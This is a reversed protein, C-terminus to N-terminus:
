RVPGTWRLGRYEREFGARLMLPLWPGASPSQDDFREVEVSRKPHAQCLATLTEAVRAGPEERSAAPFSWLTRGSRSLWFWPEGGVLAVSAGAERRPGRSGREEGPWRLSAGWPCAPDTAAIVAITQDEGDRCSRLRDVAGPAAFQAGTLGEVFYGRRIKGVEEMAKLVPYLASWGGRAAESALCERALIGHRELLSQARAHERETPVADDAGFLLDQVRSWRGGGARGRAGRTASLARLPQMTDNTVQGAWVLDWLASDVDAARTGAPGAGRLEVLFCAGRQLLHELLAEHIPGEPEYPVVEGLLLGVRERRFLRVRGDRPGLPSHGVWVWEGTSTLADLDGPRYSRVRARLVRSELESFPVPVGELRTLAEEVILDGGASVGHWGLLFRSLIEAAVPAVQGRLAALSRRRIRRLVEPDCWEREVGGPRFEGLLVRGEAVLGHLTGALQGPRVGFRAAVERTTFPAHTRAYRLAIQRLPQSVEGLYATPLGPPPMAGFADRYLAVDEVAIWRDEGAIRLQVARQARRLSALWPGAPETCRRTAEAETLDGVRRLRDHLGDADRVRYSVTLGQLEAEVEAIASADLLARLEAHGLLDRLLERDLTLAQARREALPADGEYLWAAVYDFVLSRSFPSARDTEVEVVRIERRRVARLVERLAPLDFVDQLCARYTELIVPFKPYQRAVALLNQSKLRQAWLPTRRGPGRRPLLLSRSANERFVGAFLATHGLQEIVLEEVEDPDPIWREPGAAEGLDIDDVFRLSIGDDSWLVNVEFGSRHSLMWELAMAWPAHVRSGLSTLICVRLDGLEDRFREVVITRDTPLLRTASRQEEVYELLLSRSTEDLPFREALWASASGPETHAEMERLFAGIKRGLGVPRGPGVGRWFPLQGPEGPAPSVVVRDRTIDEIRWTSAGLVFTQGPRAEFVMEEDLEGVRPGEPGVHVGYLGRDPITGANTVALLRAGRRATVTDRTRDWTVRPKLDAFETSPYRGSLMDLVARLSEDTLEAYCYSRRLLTSLSTLTQEEVTCIAVIQQALVDLANRPVRLPELAGELMGRAVVACEVLDGRYKPIIVGQSTEGVGHGARGVRQLGRGVAGPSEVLVVLDVAGMDIGLELSSTAVIVQINGSKLAEEVQERRGRSLSGHHALAIEADAMENLQQTLRESTSRSNVFVITTTHKRVLDLLREQIAPWITMPRSGDPRPGRSTRTMLKGLIAGEEEGDLLGVDDPLPKPPVVPVSEPMCISLELRPAVSTDIVEVPRDGGLYRAVEDVPRVTASLGIRQPDVDCLAALRELTVGLHVGRKSGAVAHIEDVIVLEAMRLTERVRSGVMLYLSEPTTVLIDGPRRIMRQRDRQPTDGTRVAVQIPRTFVELREATRQLGALPARLNREVDYVLAKLPSVYVVRVGDPREPDDAARSLRDLAWLFAALTKGSGTPALMLTNAGRAIAPWGQAQVPTPGGAFTHDFWARTTPGFIDPLNSLPVRRSSITVRRPRRAGDGGHHVM